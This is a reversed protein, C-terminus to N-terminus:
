SKLLLGTADIGFIRISLAIYFAALSALFVTFYTLYIGSPFFLFIWSSIVTM